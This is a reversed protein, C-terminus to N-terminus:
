SKKKKVKRPLGKKDFAYGDPLQIQSATDGLAWGKENSFANLYVALGYFAFGANIMLVFFCGGVVWWGPFKKHPPPADIAAGAETSSTM